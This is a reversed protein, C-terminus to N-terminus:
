SVLLSGHCKTRHQILGTETPFSKPCDKCSHNVKHVNSMHKRFSNAQKMYKHCIPCQFQPHPQDSHTWSHEALAGKSRFGKGCQDCIHHKPMPKANITEPHM